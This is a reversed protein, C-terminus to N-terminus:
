CFKWRNGCNICTVFTTMPEDASRTQMQYYKTRRQHCKGCKFQDTEASNDKATQANKLNEEHLRKDEAKREDSAMEAASMCCFRDAAISGDAVNCRLDPNSKDKLNLYKSRVKAKYKTDTAKFEQFLIAEIAKSVDAIQELTVWEIPPDTLASFILDMSKDRVLNGTYHEKLFNSASPVVPSSPKKDGNVAKEDENAAVASISRKKSPEEVSKQGTAKRLLSNKWKETVSAAIKSINEPGAKKIQTLLIGIRSEELIQATVEVNM